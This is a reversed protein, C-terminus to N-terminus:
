EKASASAAALRKPLVQWQEINQYLTLPAEGVGEIDTRHAFYNVTQWLPIVPLDQYALEHLEALRARVGSWSTEEELQRLGRLALPSALDGALGGSGLLKAADVVPEWVALEAYRLDFNGNEVALEDATAERLKVPIGARTLQMQIAQCAVRALPDAPHALTLTPLEPLAQAASEDDPVPQLASWAVTALIAALRPEFPRPALQSNYAYRLPDGLNRGAPFPGSIAEFGPRGAGGLLLRQLIWPRDIGYCLARRFERRSPLPRHPNPILVHVTPLRYESVNINPAAQLRALQWPPVRDLVDIEGAVLAAVAAEDDPLIREVVFRPVPERSPTELAASDVAAFLTQEASQETLRFPAARDGHQLPVQLLAEPRVFTRRWHLALTNGDQISVSALLGALDAQYLPNAPDSMRLLDRALMDATLCPAEAAPVGNSGRPRAQPVTAEPLRLRLVLGSEDPEFDGCPSRYIGGEAGFGVQEAIQREVLRSARMASWIDIRRTPQRPARELVGVVVFPLNRRVESLLEVAAPQSPWIALARLAAQRADMYQRDALFRRADEVQREAASEFRGQWRTAGASAAGGFKAQWLDLVGRAAAFDQNRLKQQIVEGAVTEVAAPLGPYNPSREGLTVLLALAREYEGSQHLALANRRLYDDIAAALDPLSSYDTLLRSFYDFAEDFNGLSALRQAEALLLQEFVRVEAVSSWSVDFTENPRSVLQLTLRGQAPVAALPRQPLNLPLVDLVDGGASHHLVVQDFPDRDLLRVQAVADAVFTFATLAAIGLWHLV